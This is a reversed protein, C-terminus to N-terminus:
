YVNIVHFYAVQSIHYVECIIAKNNVYMQLLIAFICNNDLSDNKTLKGVVAIFIFHDTWIFM